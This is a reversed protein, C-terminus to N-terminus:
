YSLISPLRVLNNNVVVQEGTTNSISRKLAKEMSRLSLWRLLIDRQSVNKSSDAPALGVTWNYRLNQGALGQVKLNFVTILLKNNLDNKKMRVQITTYSDSLGRIRSEKFPSPWSSLSRSNRCAM